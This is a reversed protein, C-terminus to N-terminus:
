FCCPEKYSTWEKSINLDISCCCTTCCSGSAHPCTIVMVTVTRELSFAFDKNIVVMWIILTIIGASIAIITLWLAARNAIDQTRSKSAQAERVLQIVGSLFSDKGTNKVEVTVAGEGNISGGIVKSGPNKPVPKSEGTLM